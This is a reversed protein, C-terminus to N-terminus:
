KKQKSEKYTTKKPVNKRSKIQANVKLTFIAFIIMAILNAVTKSFNSKM